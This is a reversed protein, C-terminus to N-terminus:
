AQITKGITIGNTEVEEQLLKIIPDNIYVDLSAYFGTITTSGDDNVSITMVGTIPIDPGVPLSPRLPITM